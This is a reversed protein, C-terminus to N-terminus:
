YIFLSEPDYKSFPDDKDPIIPIRGSEDALDPLVNGFEISWCNGCIIGYKPTKIFVDTHKDSIATENEPRQFPSLSVIKYSSLDEPEKSLYEEHKPHECKREMFFGQFRFLLFITM